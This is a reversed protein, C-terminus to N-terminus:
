ENASTRSEQGHLVGGMDHSIKDAAGRVKEGLLTFDDEDVRFSPASISIAAL